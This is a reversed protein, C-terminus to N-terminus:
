EFRSYDIWILIFEFVDEEKRVNIDDSFIWMVVENNLM